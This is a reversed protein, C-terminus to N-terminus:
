EPPTYLDYESVPLYHFLGSGGPKTMVCWEDTKNYSEVVEWKEGIGSKHRVYQKM